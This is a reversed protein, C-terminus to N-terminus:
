HNGLMMTVIILKTTAGIDWKASERARMTAVDGGALEAM